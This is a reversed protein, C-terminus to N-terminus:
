SGLAELTKKFEQWPMSKGPNVASRKLEEILETDEKLLYRRGAPVFYGLLDGNEDHLPIERSGNGQMLEKLMSAILKRKDDASQPGIGFPSAPDQDM